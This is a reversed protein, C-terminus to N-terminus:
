RRRAGVGCTALTKSLFPALAFIASLNPRRGISTLTSLVVGNSGARDGCSIEKWVEGLKLDDYPDGNDCLPNTSLLAQVDGYTTEPARRRVPNDCYSSISGDSISCYSSPGSTSYSSAGGNEGARCLSESSEVDDEVPM